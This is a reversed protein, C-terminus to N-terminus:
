RRAPLPEDGTVFSEIFLRAVDSRLVDSDLGLGYPRSLMSTNALVVFALGPEPARVILSSNADWYGYHWQLEIGEHVHIFWGLAYPLPDGAADEAPTFVSDWTSAELFRGQDIAISYAAVDEVSAILGGSTGFYSPYSYRIVRGGQWEYPAAMNALFAERDLGALFFYPSLTNPATHRLQLPQLIREVLLEGFSRGTAVEIVRDLEAFRNGNYRYSTGPVGESTHTLLHRVLITGDATLDVGYDSAPDDLDVLGQEVLQMLITSAFTKTLSALHFATSPTVRRGEDVDAFGFGMSWVIQENEVIAASLGPIRLGVRLTDLRAAFGALGEMYEVTITGGDPGAADSGCAAPLALLGMVVTLKWPRAFM